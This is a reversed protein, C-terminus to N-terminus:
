LFLFTKDSTVSRWCTSVFFVLIKKFYTKALLDGFPGPLDESGKLLVRLAMVM